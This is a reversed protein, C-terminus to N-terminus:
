YAALWALPWQGAKSFLFSKGCGRRGRKCLDGGERRGDKQTQEGM